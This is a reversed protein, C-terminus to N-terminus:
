NSINCNKNPQQFITPTFSFGDQYQFGQNDNYKNYSNIMMENYIDHKKDVISSPIIDGEKFTQYYEIEDNNTSGIEQKNMMTISVNATHNHTQKVGIDIMTGNFGNHDNNGQKFSHNETSIFLNPTFMEKNSNMTAISKNTDKANNLFKSIKKYMKSRYVLHIGWHEGNEPYWETLNAIQHTIQFSLMYKIYDDKKGHILMIPKNISSLSTIQSKKLESSRKNRKRLIDPNFSWNPSLLIIASVKNLQKSHILSVIAYVGISFGFLIIRKITQLKSLYYYLSNINNKVEETNNRNTYEFTIVSMKFFSSFDILFSLNAGLDSREDQAYIVISSTDIAAKNKIHLCNVIKDIQILQFSIVDIWHYRGYHSILNHIFM